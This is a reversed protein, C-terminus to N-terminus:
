RRVARRARAEPPRLVSVKGSTEREVIRAHEKAEVPEIGILKRLRQTTRKPTMDNAYKRWFCFLVLLSIFAGLLELFVEIKM